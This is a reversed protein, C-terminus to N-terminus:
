VCQNRFWFQDLRGRSWPVWIFRSIQIIRMDSWQQKFFWFLIGAKIFVTVNKKQAKNRLQGTWIRSKCFHYFVQHKISYKTTFKWSIVAYRQSCTSSREVCGDEINDFELPIACSSAFLETGGVCFIFTSCDDCSTRRGDPQGPCTECSSDSSNDAYFRYNSSNWDHLLSMCHHM